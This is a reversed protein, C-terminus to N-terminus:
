SDIVIQNRGSEKAIYLREDALNVVKQSSMGPIVECIGASFTIKFEYPGSKFAKQRLLELPKQLAIQAQAPDTQPLLVVFEEGGWRAVFDANRTNVTLMDALFVLVEDGILHGYTDNVRKFHDIDLVALSLPQNYRQSIASLRQFTENFAARNPIKTLPDTFLKHSVKASYELHRAVATSLTLPDIPKTFYNSVGIALCEAETTNKDYDNIVICPINATETRKSMELLLERGDGDNFKLALIILALDHSSSLVKRAEELNEASLIKRNPNSLTQGIIWHFKPDKDIILINSKEDHVDIVNRMNTILRNIVKVLEEARNEAIVATAPEMLEPINLLNSSIQITQAIREIKLKLNEINHQNFQLKLSRLRQLIAPNIGLQTAAELTLTDLVNMIKFSYEDLSSKSFINFEQQNAQLLNETYLRLCIQKLLRTFQLREELEKMSYELLVIRSNLSEQYAIAQKGKYRTNLVIDCMIKM